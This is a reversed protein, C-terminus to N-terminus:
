LYQISNDPADYHKELASSRGTRRNVPADGLLNPVASAKSKAM